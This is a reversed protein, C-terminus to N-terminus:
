AHGVANRGFGSIYQACFEVYNHKCNLGIIGGYVNLQRSM